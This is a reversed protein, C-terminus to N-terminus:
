GDSSDKTVHTRGPFGDCSPQGPTIHTVLVADSCGGRRRADVAGAQWHVKARGPAKQLTKEDISLPIESLHQATM